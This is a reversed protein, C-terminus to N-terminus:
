LSRDWLCAVTRVHQRDPGSIGKPANPMFLRATWARARAKGTVRCQLSVRSEEYSSLNGAYKKQKWMWKRGGSEGFRKLLRTISVCSASSNETTDLVKRLQPDRQLQASTWPRLTMAPGDDPQDQLSVIDKWPEGSLYLPSISNLHLVPIFLLPVAWPPAYPIFAPFSM